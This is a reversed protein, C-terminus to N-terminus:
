LDSNGIEIIELQLQIVVATWVQLGRELMPPSRWCLLIFAPSLSKRARARATQLEREPHPLKLATRRDPQRDVRGASPRRHARFLEAERPGAPGAAGPEILLGVGLAVALGLPAANGVTIRSSGQQM